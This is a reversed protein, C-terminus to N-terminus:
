VPSDPHRPVPRRRFVWTSLLVFRGLTGLASAVLLVLLEAWRPPAAVIAALV